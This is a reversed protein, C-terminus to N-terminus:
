KRRRILLAGAGLIALAITSPEPIVGPQVTFPTFAFDPGSPPSAPPTDDWTGTAQSWTAQGNPSGAALAAAYTSADSWARVQFQATSGATIGPLSQQLSFDFYGAALPHQVGLSTMSGGVPGYLVEVWATEPLDVATATATAKYSLAGATWNHANITANVAAYSQVAAVLLALGAVVLTKKM